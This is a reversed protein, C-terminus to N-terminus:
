RVVGNMSRSAGRPMKSIGHGVDGETSGAPDPETRLIPLHVCPVPATVGRRLIGATVRHISETAARMMGGDRGPTPLSRRRLDVHAIFFGSVGSEVM